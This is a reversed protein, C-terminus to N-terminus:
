FIGPGACCFYLTSPNVKVRQTSLSDASVPNQFSFRMACNIILTRFLYWGLLEQCRAVDVEGESFFM